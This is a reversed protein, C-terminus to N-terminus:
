KKESSSDEKKERENLDLDDLDEPTKKNLEESEKKKEELKELKEENEEMKEEIKDNLKAYKRDVKKIKRKYEKIKEEIESLNKNIKELLEVRKLDDGLIKSDFDLKERKRLNDAQLNTLKILKNDYEKRKKELTEMIEQSSQNIRSPEKREGKFSTGTFNSKNCETYDIRLRKNLDEENYRLETGNNNYFYSFYTYVIGNEKVIKGEIKFYEFGLDKMREFFLQNLHAYMEYTPEIQIQDKIRELLIVLPNEILIQSGKGKRLINKVKTFLPIFMRVTDNVLNISICGIPDKVLFIVDETVFYKDYSPGLVIEDYSQNPIRPLDTIDSYDYDNYDSLRDLEILIKKTKGKFDEYEQFGLALIKRTKVIKEKKPSLSAM